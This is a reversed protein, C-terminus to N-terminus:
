IGELENALVTLMAIVERLRKAPTAKLAELEFDHFLSGVNVPAYRPSTDLYQEPTLGDRKAKRADAMSLGLYYLRSGINGTKCGLKLAISEQILGDFILSILQLDKERDFAM